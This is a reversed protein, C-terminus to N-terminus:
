TWFRPQDSDRARCLIRPVRPIAHSTSTPTVGNLDPVWLTLSAGVAVLHHPMAMRSQIVDSCRRHSGIPAPQSSGSLGALVANCYDLRSLVFAVTLRTTSAHSLFRRVDKIRRLSSFCSAVMKSIHQSMTSGWELIRFLRPERLSAVTSLSLNHVYSALSVDPDM